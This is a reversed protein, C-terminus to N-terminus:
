GDVRRRLFQFLGAAMTKYNRQEFVRAQLRQARRAVAARDMSLISEVQRHIAERTFDCIFACRHDLLRDYEPMRNVLVNLGLAGYEVTKTPSATIYTKTHPFFCIGVDAGIIKEFLESRPLPGHFRIRGDELRRIDDVVANRSASYYDLRFPRRQAMFAQNIIDLRRLKDVAGIYVFHLPGTKRRPPQIPHAEFDFGMPTAHCPIALDPYFTSKHTDTIPMYFDCAEILKRERRSALFYEIRKRLIARREFYAQELRRHSHPFSEWFGVRAPLGAKLIQALAHFLNRVIIVQFRRLDMLETLAAALRRRRHAYPLVLRDPNPRAAALGKAFFVKTCRIGAVPDNKFLGEVASHDSRADVDAILLINLEDTMNLGDDIDATHVRIRIIPGYM